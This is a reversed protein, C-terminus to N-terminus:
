DDPFLEKLNSVFVGKDSDWRKFFKGIMPLLDRIEAPLVETGGRFKVVEINEEAIVHHDSGDTGVMCRYYPQRYTSPSWGVGDDSGMSGNIGDVTWGLILGYYDYRRHRFVQGVRYKVYLGGNLRTRRRPEKASSDVRRIDRIQDRAQKSPLEWANRRRGPPASFTDYMPCVYKEVLWADEPFYEYFYTLLERVDQQWDWRGDENDPLIPVMMVSAWIMSYLAPQLNRAWDGRNLEIMPILQSLPREITRFSTFSARISQATRMVILDTATPRMLRDHSTAAGLRSLFTQIHDLPVEDDSGFPDLFMKQQEKAGPLSHGDLSLGPPSLVIAHVHNTLVCCYAELDLRSAIASYIAASIIPLSPHQDDRLARGILCNRLYHYTFEPGNLGTMNTSHLWRALAIAKQRTTSSNIGPHANRFQSAIGDVLESIEDLDGENDHLMFMDFAGLARELKMGCNLRESSPADDDLRRAAHKQYKAWEEIALGRHISDLVTCAYHRRALVDEASEDVRCQALLFDKADYGYQCIQEMNRLRFVRSEVICDLLVAARANRRLRLLFLSKWDVDYIPRRLKKEFQHDSSWYRFSSRCYYRWLLPEQAVRHIRKSLPSVNKLTEEPSIYQLIHQVLEDPLCELLSPM